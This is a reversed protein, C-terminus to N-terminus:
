FIRLANGGSIRAIREDSYGHDKMAATLARIRSFDELGRCAHSIGDYDSGLAVHHDGVLSIIHDMHRLLEPIGASPGEQGPMREFFAAVRSFRATTDLSPDSFIRTMESRYLEEIKKHDAGPAPPVLHGPYFSLGVVGGSGAIARIADDEINRATGTLARAGGHSFIVPKISHKCAALITATNAHAVDVIVGLANLHKIIEIGFATLGEPPGGSESAAWLTTHSHTLTLVRMGERYLVDLAHMSAAPDDEALAYAGEVGLIGATRDSAMVADIEKRNTALSVASKPKQFENKLLRLQLLAIELAEPPRFNPDCYCAFVLASPRVARIKEMTIHLGSAPDSMSRVGDSMKMAADNHLDILM